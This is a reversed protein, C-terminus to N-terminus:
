SIRGFLVVRGDTAGDSCTSLAVIRDSSTVGIERYQTANEQLYEVLDDIPESTQYRTPWYVMMDFADTEMCAFWTIFLTHEVTFLTGTSHSEFYDDELFNPLEGFMVNGEMHHGYILSFPDTFDNSNDCDLFISGSLSFEKDVGRNLYEWNNEGQVVPYDIHTEDVTLWACIDPNIKQLEKLIPNPTDYGTSNPKYKLLDASVSANHYIKWTDWVGFGGFLLAIILLIAIVANLLRDGGRAVSAALNWGKKV